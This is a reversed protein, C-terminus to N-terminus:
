KQKIVQIESIFYYIESAGNTFIRNDGTVPLRLRSSFSTTVIRHEASPRGSLKVQLNSM